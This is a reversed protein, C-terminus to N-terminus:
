GRTWHQKDSMETSPAMIVASTGVQEIPSSSNYSGDLIISATGNRIGNCLAQCKDKPLSFKDLLITPDAKARNFGDQLNFWAYDNDFESM